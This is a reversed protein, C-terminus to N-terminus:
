KTGGSLINTYYRLVPCSWKTGCGFAASVVATGDSGVYGLCIFLTTLYRL